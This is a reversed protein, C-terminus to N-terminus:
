QQKWNSNSNSNSIEMEKALKVNNGKASNGNAMAKQDRINGISVTNTL